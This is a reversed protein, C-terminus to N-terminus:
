RRDSLGKADLSPSLPGLSSPVCRAEVGNQGMSGVLARQEVFRCKRCLYPSIGKIRWFHTRPSSCRWCIVLVEDGLIM